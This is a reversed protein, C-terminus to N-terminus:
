RSASMCVSVSKAYRLAKPKDICVKVSLVRPEQLALNLVEFTLKELLKFRSKKVFAIVKQKLAKYDLAQSLADTRVAQRADYSVSLNVIVTQRQKREWSNTGIIAPIRLDTITIVATPAALTKKM